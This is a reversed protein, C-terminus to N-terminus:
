PVIRFGMKGSAMVRHFTVCTVGAKPAALPVPLRTRLSELMEAVFAPDTRGLEPIPASGPSEKRNQRCGVAGVAGKGPEVRFGVDPYPTWGILLMKLAANEGRVRLHASNASIQALLVRGRFNDVEVPAVTGEAQNHGQAKATAVHGGVYVFEGADTLHLFHEPNGEYWTDRVLLRGGKEVQYIRVAPDGEGRSSAGQFLCAQAATKEGKASRPGGAVRMGNHDTDHMTVLAEDLGDLDFGYGYGLGKGQEVHVRAGPQDVGEVLVATAGDARGGAAIELQRVAARSPGAVRIVPNAGAAELKTANHLGDGVLQVDCGPPFVLPKDIRYTSRPLHVVPRRGADKAAADIAQQIAGANAGAPVEIVPRAVRSPAIAPDADAAGPLVLAEAKTGINVFRVDKSLIKVPEKAAIANGVMVLEGNGIASGMQVPPKADPPLGAIVNDVLLWAGPNGMFIVMGKDPPPTPGLIVNAQLTVQAGQSHGWGTSFFMRSGISVNRVFSFYGLNGITVDADTSRRFVSEYVHFNGCGPDNTAGRRCDEFLCRWFWWDLSNWNQTLFGAQSCRLFRCRLVACEAQGQTENRGAQIGVGVDRFVCDSVENATSFKDGFYLAIKAKGAGDLTLRSFKSYWAGWQLLVGDAPGDWRITAKAPDEGILAIGTSEAHKERLVMLTRTVRYTGPPIYLVKDKSEQPRLADLAKQLADTDDAKGDGAAGFDKRLDLWGALPGNFEDTEVVGNAAPKAAPAPAAAQALVPPKAPPAPRPADMATVAVGAASAALLAGGGLVAAAKVKAWLMLKMAGESITSLSGGSAAGAVAADLAAAACGASLAAPAAAAAEAHLGAAVLGASVAVGRRLFFARMKVLGYAIRKRVADESCGLVAAVERQPRGELYHMVVAAQQAAALGTVADNLHPLARRWAAEEAPRMAEERERRAMEAAAAERRRRREAERRMTRVVFGAARFLWPGLASADRISGGKRALVVFVAQAADEAQAADGGLGRRCAAYVMPAHRDVLARFAEPSGDRRFRTLAEADDM